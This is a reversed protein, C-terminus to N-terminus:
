PLAINVTWNGGSVGMNIFYGNCLPRSTGNILQYTVSTGCCDKVTIFLCDLCCVDADDFTVTGTSSSVSQLVGSKSLYDLRINLDHATCDTQFTVTKTAAQANPVLGIILLALVFIIKLAKM